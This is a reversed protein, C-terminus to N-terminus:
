GLVSFGFPRAPYPLQSYIRGLLLVFRWLSHHIITISVWAWWTINLPSPQQSYHNQFCLLNLGSSWGSLWDSSFPLHTYLHCGVFTLYL